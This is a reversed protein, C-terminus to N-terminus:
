NDTARKVARELTMPQPRLQWNGTARLGPTKSGGGAEGIALPWDRSPDAHGTAPPRHGTTTPGDAATARVSGLEARPDDRRAPLDRRSAAAPGFVHSAGLVIPRDREIRPIGIEQQRDSRHRTRESRSM